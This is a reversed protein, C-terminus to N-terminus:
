RLLGAPLRQGTLYDVNRLADNPANPVSCEAALLVHDGHRPYILGSFTYRLVGSPGVQRLMTGSPTIDVRLPPPSFTASAVCFSGAPAAVLATFLDGQQVVTACMSFGSRPDPYLPSALCNAAGLADAPLLARIRQAATTSQVTHVGHAAAQGNVPLPAALSLLSTVLVLSAACRQRM